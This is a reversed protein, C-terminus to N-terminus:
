TGETVIVSANTGAAIMNVTNSPAPSFEQPLGAPNNNLARIRIGNAVTAAAGFNIYIDETAHLNYIKLLRRAANVGLIQQSTVTITVPYNILTAAGDGGGADGWITQSM